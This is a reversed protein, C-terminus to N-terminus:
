TYNENISYTTFKKQFLTCQIHKATIIRNKIHLFVTVVSYLKQIFQVSDPAYELPLRYLSKVWGFIGHM